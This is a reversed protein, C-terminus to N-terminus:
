AIEYRMLLPNLRQAIERMAQARGFEQCDKPCASSPQIPADSPDVVSFIRKLEDMVDALLTDSAAAEIASALSFTQFDQM